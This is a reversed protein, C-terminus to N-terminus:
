VKAIEEKATQVALSIEEPKFESTLFFRLRGASLPVGPYIIL